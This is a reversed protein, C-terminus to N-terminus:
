ALQKQLARRMAQDRHTGAYRYFYQNQGFKHTEGGLRDRLAMWPSFDAPPAQKCAEVIQRLEDVMEDSHVVAPLAEPPETPGDVDLIVVGRLSIWHGYEAHFSLGTLPDSAALGSMAALAGFDVTMGMAREGAFADAGAEVNKPAM